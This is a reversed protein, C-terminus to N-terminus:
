LQLTSTQTLVCRENTRLKTSDIKMVTKTLVCVNQFFM